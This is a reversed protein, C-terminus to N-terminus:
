KYAGIRDAGHNRVRRIVSGRAPDGDNRFHEIIDVLPVAIETDTGGAPSRDQQWRTDLGRFPSVEQEFGPVVGNIDRDVLDAKEISDVQVHDGKEFFVFL